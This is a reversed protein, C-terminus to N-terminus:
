PKEEKPSMSGSEFNESILELGRASAAPKMSTKSVEERSEDGMQGPSFSATHKSYIAWAQAQLEDAQRNLNEDNSKLAIDRLQDCVALRRLYAAQERKVEAQEKEHQTPEKPAASVPKQAAVKNADSKRQASKQTNELRDKQKKAKMRWPPGQNDDPFLRSIIGSSPNDAPVPNDAKNPGDAWVATGLAFTGLVGLGLGMIGSKRM